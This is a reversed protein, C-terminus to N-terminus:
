HAMKVQTFHNLVAILLLLSAIIAFIFTLGMMDSIIGVLAPAFLCGGYAITSVCSLAAAKPMVNQRGVRSFMIPVINSCGFGLLAYGALVMM